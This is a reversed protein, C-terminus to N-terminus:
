RLLGHHVALELRITISDTKAQSITGRQKM